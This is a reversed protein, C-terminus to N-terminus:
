TGAAASLLERANARASDGVQEGALMRAIEDVRTEGDLLNIGTVTRGNVEAKDIRFHHDARGAMQPLHSIVLVQRHQALEALKNATVAAARGSLGTDAEDLILTPVGARGAGAVKIALMVRSLEGGSAVKNLAKADEGPNASFIFCAEDAGTEDAEKPLLQVDFVAKPMALDRIHGGVEKAFKPSEKKRLATLKECAATLAAEAQDLEKELAEASLSRNELSDLEEKADALYRLIEEESEGYKRLLRKLGDLREATEQVAQPDLNLEDSYLRLTRLGEELQYLSQRLPDISETLTPDFRTLSEIEGVSQSLREMASGESEQLAEFARACAEALREANQLRALQAELEELERPRPAFAEIEEIQYRLLDIRQERERQSSRARALQRKASEMARFREAVEERAQTASDGIWDDLFYLQRVPDMLGHHDHQGHLDVLVRGIERLTSVPVLRGNVRASSRGESVDRQITLEGNEIPLDSAECLAQAAPNDTVDVVLSVSARSAGTRVLTTDARDGLALGISDILLSKGAGTEGTLATLGSDLSLSAEHIVAVNQVSLEKLM